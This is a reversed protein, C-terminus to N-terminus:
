NAAISVNPKENLFIAHQTFTGVPIRKREQCLRVHPIKRLVPQSCPVEPRLARGSLQKVVLCCNRPSKGSLDPSMVPTSLREFVGPRYYIGVGVPIKPFFQRPVLRGASVASAHNERVSGKRGIDRVATLLVISDVLEEVERRRPAMREISNTRTRGMNRNSIKEMVSNESSIDARALTEVAACLPALSILMLPACSSSTCPRTASSRPGARAAPESIM